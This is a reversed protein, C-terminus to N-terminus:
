RLKHDRGDRDAGHRGCVRLAGARAINTCCSRIADDIRGGDRPFRRSGPRPFPQSRGGKVLLPGSTYCPTTNQIRMLLMLSSTVGSVTGSNAAGASTATSTWAGATTGTSAAATAAGSGGVVSAMAGHFFIPVSIRAPTCVSTDAATYAVSM